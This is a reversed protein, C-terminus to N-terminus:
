NNLFTHIYLATDRAGNEKQLRNGLERAKEVVSEQQMRLIGDMLKEVTLEKRPIPASGVGLEETRKGWAFQDNGHPVVVSPVGSYYTAATTGAGGHHIVGATRQFLWTHPINDIFYMDKFDEIDDVRNWGMGLIGRHGTKRLAEVVLKATENANEDYISGFGVYIPPKGSEIFSVLEKPPEWDTLDEKLFWYGLCKTEENSQPFVHQSMSMVSTHFRTTEKLYPNNFHKPLMGFREKWFEGIPSKVTLWFGKEFLKHTLLNAMKGLRVRYFILAPYNKTAAMPFPTALVTPVGFYEGAFQGIAAGPHYIIADAEECADFLDSQMGMQKDKIYPKMKRFSTFFKLPNDSEISSKSMEGVIKSIDGKIPHFDLGHDEVLGQYNEFAAIKVAHGLKKLEKGLAIYPQTDGRTGTTLLSINM